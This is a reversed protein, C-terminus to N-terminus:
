KFMMCVLASGCLVLFIELIHLEWRNATYFLNDKTVEKLLRELEELQEEKVLCDICM